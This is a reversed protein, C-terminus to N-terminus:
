AGELIIRLVFLLLCRRRRGDEEVKKKELCREEVAKFMPGGSAEGFM